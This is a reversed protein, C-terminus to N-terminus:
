EIREPEDLRLVGPKIHNRADFLAAEEPEVIEEEIADIDTLDTRHM